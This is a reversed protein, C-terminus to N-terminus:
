RDSSQWFDKKFLLLNDKVRLLGNKSLQNLTRSLTEPSVGLGAALDKKSLTLKISGSPGYDNELFLRLRDAVNEVTLFRIREALYRQKRMLLRIFDERFDRDELLELFPRKHLAYLTSECLATATVPYVDSEFLVVEGFLEGPPIIRVTAQQGGHGMKSLGIAGQVVIYVAEGKEGEHFLIEKSEITKKRCLSVLREGGARSLGKFFPSNAIADPLPAMM